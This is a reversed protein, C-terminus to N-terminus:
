PCEREFVLFDIGNRRMEGDRVFGTSEYLNHAEQMPKQTWLMMKSWGKDGAFAIAQEVLQRGLGHGRFKPLVGLLHMECESAKAKVAAPSDPPVVIVMGSLANSAAERAIFLFGRNRVKAPAFVTEAMEATTFGAQVYVESLLDFIERDSASLKEIRDITFEM